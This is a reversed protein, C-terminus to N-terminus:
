SERSAAIALRIGCRMLPAIRTVALGLQEATRIATLPRCGALGFRHELVSREPDPLIHAFRRVREDPELEAQWPSVRRTWDPVVHGSRLLPTARGPPKPRREVRDWAAVAKSVALGVPAALRGGHAPDFSGAASGAAGIALTMLETLEGPPLHDVPTGLRDEITRVINGLQARLLEARLRAELRLLTEAEDVALRSVNFKPLATVIAGAAEELRRRATARSSEIAADPPPTARAGEILAALDTRDPSGLGHGVILEDTPWPDPEASPGPDFPRFSRLVDARAEVITRAVSARSRGFRRALDAPEIGLHTARLALAKRRDMPPPRRGFVSASGDHRILLQRIGEHSRNFRRALRLAAENLSLGLAARYRAARRVMRDLEDPAIRTFHGARSIPRSHAREFVEVVGSAFMLVSRGQETRVRRAVLGQRRYRDITKRSVGWRRCLTTADLFGDLEDLSLRADHSLREVLSSLDALLGAGETMRPREIEPRYGTVRFVIWDEPYTTDHDVEGALTEAREIDRKLARPPAFRLQEYLDKIAPSRLQPLPPM